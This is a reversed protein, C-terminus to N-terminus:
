GVIDYGKRELEISARQMDLVGRLQFIRQLVTVPAGGADLADIVGALEDAYEEVGKLLLANASRAPLPAVIRALQVAASRLAVRAGELAKVDKQAEEAKGASALETDGARQLSSSLKAGLTQM